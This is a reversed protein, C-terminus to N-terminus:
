DINSNDEFKTAKADFMDPKKAKNDGFVGRSLRSGHTM